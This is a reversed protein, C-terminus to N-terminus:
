NDSKQFVLRLSPKRTKQQWQLALGRAAMQEVLHSKRFWLLHQPPNVDKWGLFANADDFADGDPTTLLLLGGPEVVCCLADLFDGVSNLHEIVESCLVLRYQQGTKAHDQISVTEFDCKPFLNQAALITENSIEIGRGVYGLRRAAEVAFGSNCGVDLFRGPGSVMRARLLKPMWRWVKKKAHRAYKANM